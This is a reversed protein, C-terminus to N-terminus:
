KEGSIPNNIEFFAKLTNIFKMVLRGDDLACRYIDEGQQVELYKGPKFPLTPLKSSPINLNVEEGNIRGKINFKDRGLSLEGLGVWKFKHKKYDLMFIRTKASITYDPNKRLMASHRKFIAKSWDSIYRIEKLADTNHLFGYKDSSQEFGCETCYITSRNKVKVTFEGGCHPCAYLVNEIGEINGNNKYEALITEQERYADFLIAEDTKAKVQGVSMKKLEARDFLKYIDMYTKGPRFGKTWKPMTFYTGSARAVYVDADLWKLFKYTAQPIPTSIGDECMLGAPYIVLPQGNEIVAKIRRMDSVSTQFQQKPIVGLRHLIGTIPLSNYFSNSIVFTLRRKTAGILNAFDYAAQHNAIVVYAGEANKIENRIYERKFVYAAFANAVLQAARYVILQPQAYEIKEM